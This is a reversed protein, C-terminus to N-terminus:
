DLVAYWQPGRVRLGRVDLVGHIKYIKKSYKCYKPSIATPVGSNMLNPVVALNIKIEASSGM